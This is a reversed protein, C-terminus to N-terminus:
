KSFTIVTFSLRTWRFYWCDCADCHGLKWLPYWDYYNCYQREIGFWTNINYNICELFYWTMGLIVFHCILTDTL